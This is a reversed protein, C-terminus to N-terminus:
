LALMDEVNLRGRLCESYECGYCNLNENEVGLNMCCGKLGKEDFCNGEEDFYNGEEDSYSGEEDFYNGEDFCNCYAGIDDVGFDLEREVVRGPLV